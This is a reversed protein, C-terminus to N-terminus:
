KCCIPCSDDVEPLRRASKEEEFEAGTAKKYIQTLKSTTRDIPSARAHM